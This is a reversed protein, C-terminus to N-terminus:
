PSKSHSGQSPTKSPLNPVTLNNKKGIVDAHVSWWGRYVGKVCTPINTSAEECDEGQFLAACKKNREVTTANQRTGEAEAANLTGAADECYTLSM